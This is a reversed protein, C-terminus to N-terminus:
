NASDREGGEGGQETDKTASHSGTLSEKAKKQTQTVPFVLLLDHVGEWPIVGPQIWSSSGVPAWSARQSMPYDSRGATGESTWIFFVGQESSNRPIKM